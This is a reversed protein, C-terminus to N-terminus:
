ALLREASEQLFTLPLERAGWTVWPQLENKPYRSNKM